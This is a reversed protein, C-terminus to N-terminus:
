QNDSVTWSPYSCKIYLSGAATTMARKKIKGATLWEWVAGTHNVRFACSPCVTVAVPEMVRRKPCTADVQAYASLVPGQVAPTPAGVGAVQVAALVKLAVDLVAVTLMTM